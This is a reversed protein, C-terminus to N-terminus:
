VNQQLGTQEDKGEDVKMTVNENKPIYIVYGDSLLICFATEVDRVEKVNEFVLTVRKEAM